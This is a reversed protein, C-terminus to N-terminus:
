QHPESLCAASQNSAVGTSTRESVYGTDGACGATLFYVTGMGTIFIPQRNVQEGPKQLLTNTFSTVRAVIGESNTLTYVSMLHHFGFPVVNNDIDVAISYTAAPGM